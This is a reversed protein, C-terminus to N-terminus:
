KLDIILMNFRYEHCNTAIFIMHIHCLFSLIFYLDSLQTYVFPNMLFYWTCKVLKNCWCPLKTITTMEAQRNLAMSYNTVRTSCKWCRSKPCSGYMDHQWHLFCSSLDFIATLHRNKVVILLNFRGYNHTNIKCRFSFQRHTLKTFLSFCVKHKDKTKVDSLSNICRQDGAILTQGCQCCSQQHVYLMGDFFDRWCAHYSNWFTPLMINKPGLQSHVM